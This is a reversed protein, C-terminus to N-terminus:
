SPKAIETRTETTHFAEAVTAMGARAEVEGGRHLASGGLPQSPRLDGHDDPRLLQNRCAAPLSGQTAWPFLVSGAPWGRRVERSVLQRIGRKHIACGQGDHPLDPQEAGDRAPPCPGSAGARLARHRDKAAGRAARRQAPASAGNEAVDSKRQATYLLLGLALRARSGIPHKAEFATIEDETWTHIGTSRLRSTKVSATPDDAILGTGVAFHMLARLTKLFNRAAAPTHARAALMASVHAREIKTIRKDGHENRFRELISRRTRQTEPRLALFESSAYYGVLAASVTGPTTRKVGIQRAAPTDATAASYAQMFEPSRPLGPLPVRKMGIRRM